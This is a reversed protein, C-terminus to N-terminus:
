GIQGAIAATAFSKIRKIMSFLGNRRNPSIHEDLDFQTFLEKADFQLLQEITKSQVASLLITVLGKVILSDSDAEITLLMPDIANRHAVMWVSSMCGEVKNIDQKLEDPLAPLKRGLEIIYEYRESPEEMLEFTEKLDSLPPPFPASNM